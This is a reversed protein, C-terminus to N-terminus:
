SFPLRPRGRGRATSCSLLCEGFLCAWLGKLGLCGGQLVSPLAPQYGLRSRSLDSLQSAAPAEMAKLLPGEVGAGPNHLLQSAM